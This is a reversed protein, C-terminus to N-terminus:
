DVFPHRENCGCNFQRARGFRVAIIEGTQFLSGDRHAEVIQRKGVHGLRDSAAFQEQMAGIEIDRGAPHENVIPNPIRRHFHFRDRGFEFLRQSFVSILFEAACRRPRERRARLLVERHYSEQM